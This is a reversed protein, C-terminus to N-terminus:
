LIEKEYVEFKSDYINAFGHIDLGIKQWKRNKKFIYEEIGKEFFKIKIIELFKNLKSLIQIFRIKYLIFEILRLLKLKFLIKGILQFLNIRM